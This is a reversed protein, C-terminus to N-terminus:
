MYDRTVNQEEKTMYPIKLYVGCRNRAKAYFNFVFDHDYLYVLKRYIINMAHNSKASIKHNIQLVDESSIDRCNNELFFEINGKNALVKIELFKSDVDTFSHIFANEGLPQLFNFPVQCAYIKQSVDMKIELNDGFRLKQLNLYNCFYQYEQEFSVTKQNAQITYRMMKSLDVIGQYLEMDDGELAMLSLTNLTNFLFHNNLKLNELSSGINEIDKKLLFQEKESEELGGKVTLFEYYSAIADAVNQLLLVAATQTSQPTNSCSSDTDSATIKEPFYGGQIYGAFDNDFFIPVNIIQYGWKCISYFIKNDGKGSIVSQCSLNFDQLKCRKECRTRSKAILNGTSDYITYPFHLSELHNEWIKDIAEALIDTKNFECHNKASKNLFHFFPTDIKVSNPNSVLLHRARGFGINFVEHVVGQPYHLITGQKCHKKEGDAISLMEGEYVVLVQETYHIHPLLHAHPEITVIGVNLFEDGVLQENWEISGWITKQIQM